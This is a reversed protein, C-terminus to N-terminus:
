HEPVVGIRAPMEVLLERELHERNRVHGQVCERRDEHDHERGDDRGLERSTQQQREKGHPKITSQQPRRFDGNRPRQPSTGTHPTRAWQPRM